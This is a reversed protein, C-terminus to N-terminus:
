TNGFHDVGSFGGGDCYVVYFEIFYFMEKIIIIIVKFGVFM